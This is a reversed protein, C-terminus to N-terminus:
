PIYLRKCPEDLIGVDKLMENKSIGMQSPCQIKNPYNHTWM